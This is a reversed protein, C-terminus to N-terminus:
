RSIFGIFGCFFSRCKRGYYNNKKFKMQFYIEEATKNPILLLLNFPWRESFKFGTQYNMIMEMLCDRSSLSTSEIKRM